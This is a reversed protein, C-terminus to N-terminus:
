DAKPPYGFAYERDNEGRAGRTLDRRMRQRATGAARFPSAM